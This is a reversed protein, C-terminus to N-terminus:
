AQFVPALDAEDDLPFAAVMHALRLTVDLNFRVAERWEPRL